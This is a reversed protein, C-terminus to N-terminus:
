PDGEPMKEEAELCHSHVRSELWLERQILTSRGHTDSGVGGLSVLVLCASM